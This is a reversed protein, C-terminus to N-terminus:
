WSFLIVLFLSALKFEYQCIFLMGSATLPPSTHISSMEVLCFDAKRTQQQFCEMEIQCDYFFTLHTVRNVLFHFPPQAIEMKDPHLCTNRDCYGRSHRGAPSSGTSWDWHTWIYGGSTPGGWPNRWWTRSQWGWATCTSLVLLLPIMAVTKGKRTKRKEPKVWFDLYDEAARLVCCLNLHCM